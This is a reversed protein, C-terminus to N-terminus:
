QYSSQKHYKRVHFEKIYTKDFKEIWIIDMDIKLGLINIHQCQIKNDM